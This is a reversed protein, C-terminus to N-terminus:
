LYALRSLRTSDRLLRLVRGNTVLGYLHETSNLYEQMLAHPYMRLRNGEPKRDMADHYGMILIPFGGLENDM